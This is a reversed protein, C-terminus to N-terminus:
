AAKRREQSVGEFKQLAWFWCIVCLDEKVPVGPNEDSLLLGAAKAKEETIDCAMCKM